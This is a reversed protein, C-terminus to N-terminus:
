KESRTKKRATTKWWFICCCFKFFFHTYSACYYYCYYYHENRPQTSDIQDRQKTQKEKSKFILYAWTLVCYYHTLLLLALLTYFISIFISSGFFCLLTYYLFIRRRCRCFLCSLSHSFNSKIMWHNILHRMLHCRITKKQCHHHEWQYYLRYRRRLQPGNMMLIRYTSHPPSSFQFNVNLYITRTIM